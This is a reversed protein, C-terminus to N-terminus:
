DPLNPVCYIRLGSGYRYENACDSEGQSDGLDGM